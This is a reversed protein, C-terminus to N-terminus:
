KNQILLYVSQDMTRGGATTIQNKVAIANAAVVGGALWVTSVSNTYTNSVITVTVPVTWTSGSITDGGTLRQSWDISYDLVDAPDKAPWNLTSAM